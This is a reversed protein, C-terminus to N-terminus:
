ALKNSQGVGEPPDEVHWDCGTARRSPFHRAGIILRFVLKRPLLSNLNVSPRESNRYLSCWDLVIFHEIVLQIREPSQWYIQERVLQESTTTSGKLFLILSWPRCYLDDFLRNPTRLFYRSGFLSERVPYNRICYSKSAVYSVIRHKSYSM